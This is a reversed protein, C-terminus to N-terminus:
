FLRPELAELKDEIERLELRFKADEVREMLSPPKIPLAAIAAAFTLIVIAAGAGFGAWFSEQNLSV